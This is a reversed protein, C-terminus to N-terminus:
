NNIMVRHVTSTSNANSVKLFYIGTAFTSVDLEVQNTNQYTKSLVARGLQDMLEITGAVETNALNQIQLSHQAPNPYIRIVPAKSNPM